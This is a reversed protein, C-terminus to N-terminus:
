EHKSPNLQNVDVKKYGKEAPEINIIDEACDWTDRIWHILFDGSMLYKNKHVQDEIIKYDKGDKHNSAVSWNIATVKFISKEFLEIKDRADKLPYHEYSLYKEEIVEELEMKRFNLDSEMEYIDEGVGIVTIEISKADEIRKAISKIAADKMSLAWEEVKDENRYWITFKRKKM